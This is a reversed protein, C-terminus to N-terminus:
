KINRFNNRCKKHMGGRLDEHTCLSFGYDYPSLLYEKIIGDKLECVKTKTTLTIEDLGDEGQVVM